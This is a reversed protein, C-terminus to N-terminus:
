FVYPQMPFYPVPGIIICSILTFVTGHIIYKYSKENTKAVFGVFQTTMSYCLASLLFVLGSQTASFDGVERVHFDLTAENFGIITCIVASAILNIYVGELRITQWLTTKEVKEEKPCPKCDGQILFGCPLMSVLCMFGMVYFPFSYGGLEYLFGGIGPGAMQGIGTGM